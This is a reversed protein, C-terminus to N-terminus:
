TEFKPLIPGTTASTNWKQFKSTMKKQFNDENSANEINTLKSNSINKKINKIINKFNM